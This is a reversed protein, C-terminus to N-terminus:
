GGALEDWSTAPVGLEDMRLVYTRHHRRAEGYRGLRVLLSVLAGYTAEDYPDYALLRAYWHLAEAPEDGAARLGALAHLVERGLLKVEEREGLVWDVGDADELLEGTHMAAAGELLPVARASGAKAAAVAARAAATFDVLDVSVHRLDLRVVGGDNVVVSDALRRGPDLVSRVHSLAVSLRNGVADTDPWVLAGLRERGIGRDGRCALVRLVDRAKRSPWASAPLPEGGLEVGFQGLVHVRSEDAALPRAVSRLPGGVRWIDDHVGLSRLEDRAVTATLRDRRRYAVVIENALMRLPNDLDRWIDGAERLSADVREDLGRADAGARALAGLELADALRPLDRNATALEVARESLATAAEADGASLRVWGAAVVPTAHGVPTLDRMALEALAAARAPDTGVLSVAEGAVARAHYQANDESAALRASHAYAMAAQTANGRALQVDGRLQWSVSASPAELSTWLDRATDSEILAEDLRGLSLLAESVNHRLIALGSLHGTRENIELGRQLHQLAETSRGEDLSRSGLNNWTRELTQLDGAEDALVLAREYCQLNLDRDGDFAALMANAVWASAEAGPDGAVRAYKLAEEASARCTELDGRGWATSSRMGALRAWDADGARGPDAYGLVRLADGLHGLHHLAYGARWAVGVPATGDDDLVHQVLTVWDRGLLTATVELHREIVAATTEAPPLALLSGLLASSRGALSGSAAGGATAM